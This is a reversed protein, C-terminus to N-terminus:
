FLERCFFSKLIKVDVKEFQAFANAKKNQSQIKKSAAKDAKSVMPHLLRYEDSNPDVQYDPNRFLAKFRDDKM